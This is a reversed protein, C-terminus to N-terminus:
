EYFLFNEVLNSSRPTIIILFLHEIWCPSFLYSNILPFDQLFRSYRSNRKKPPWGTYGHSFNQRTGGLLLNKHPKKFVFMRSSRTQLVSVLPVRSSERVIEGWQTVSHPTLPNLPCAFPHSFKFQQRPPCRDSNAHRICGSWGCEAFCPLPVANPSWRVTASTETDCVVIM